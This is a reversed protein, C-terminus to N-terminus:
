RRSKCKSELLGFLAQVAFTGACSLAVPPEATVKSNMFDFPNSSNTLLSVRFDIPIDLATLPKYEWTNNNYLKGNADYTVEETLNLGLGMVFGGELQGIDVCPNLSIGADFLIDSRTLAIEGTLVDLVVEQVVASYSNYATNPSLQQTPIWLGQAQLNIGAGIAKAVLQQWTLAEAQPALSRSSKPPSLLSKLPALRKNIEDCAQTAAYCCLGSTVSGGTPGSNPTTTTSAGIITILDMPIGLKYAVAQAVKTDIGQGIEIGSHHVTVTGDGYINILASQYFGPIWEAAWRCPVISIGKKKWTNALNYNYVASYREQYDSSTKLQSWIVDMNWYSLTTGDPITMGKKLFNLQKFFGPELSLNAAAHEVIHEIIRIGPTWGPGRVSTNCAANTKVLKSEAKFNPINYCSYLTRLLGAVTFVSDNPSCGAETYTIIELANILGSNMVGISYEAYHMPRKGVMEFNNEIEMVGKVPVGLKQAAVALAAALTEANLLKGGYGGGCRKVEVTVGNIPISLASAIISQIFSTWQTAIHAKIETPEPGPIVLGTHTEMHMHIQGGLSVTGKYVQDSSALGQTVDGCTMPQLPLPFFSNAAIADAISLIPTTVGTYTATVLKAANNAIVQSTAIVMGIAQGYYMIPGSAFIPVGQHTTNQGPVDSASVWALVGSVSLAASPDVSALTGSAVTSMVFAAFVTGAPDPIDATYQVEGSTQQVGRYKHIAQSIPYESPDTQYSQVGSSVPREADLKTMASLFNPSIVTVPLCSLYFKYFFGLAANQRYQVNGLTSDINLESVLIGLAAQLSTPSSLSATMLYQETKTMRCQKQRLNGYAIVPPNTIKGNVVIASFSANVQAHAFVNRVAVKYTRYVQSPLGLPVAISKLVYGTANFSVFSLLDM